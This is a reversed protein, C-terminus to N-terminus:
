VLAHSSVRSEKGGFQAEHYSKVGNFVAMSLFQVNLKDAIFLKSWKEGSKM